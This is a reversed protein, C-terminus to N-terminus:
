HYTFTALLGFTTFSADSKPGNDPKLSPSTTTARGLVGMSWQEGVWWEYGVGLMAGFGSGSSELDSPAKVAATSFGLSGQVHLGGAPNPYYDVFPGILTLSTTGGDQEDNIAKFDYSTTPVIVPYSGGGVVLGPAVTGGLAFEVAAGVGGVDIADNFVSGSLAAPGLGLRMYFGDHQRVGKRPNAVGPGAGVAAANGQASGGFPGEVKAEATVSAAAGQKNGAEAAEGARNSEDPAPVGWNNGAGEGEDAPEPKASRKSPAPRKPKSSSPASSAVCEGADTCREGAGCGPNCKSVCEGEVCAYGSRCEPVCAPAPAKLEQTAPRRAKGRGRPAPEQAGAFLSVSLTAVLALTSSVRVTSFRITSM